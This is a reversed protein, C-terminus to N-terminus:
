EEEGGETYRDEQSEVIKAEERWYRCYNSRIDEFSRRNAKAEWNFIFLYFIFIAMKLYRLRKASTRGRRAEFGAGDAGDAGGAFCADKVASM